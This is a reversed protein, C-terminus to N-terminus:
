NTAIVFEKGNAPLISHPCLARLYPTTHANKVVLSLSGKGQKGIMVSFHANHM